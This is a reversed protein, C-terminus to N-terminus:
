IAVSSASSARRISTIPNFFGHALLLKDIVVNQRGVRLATVCDSTRPAALMAEPTGDITCPATAALVGPASQSLTASAPKLGAPRSAASARSTVIGVVASITTPDPRM